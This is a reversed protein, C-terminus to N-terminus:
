DTPSSRVEQLPAMTHSRSIWNGAWIALLVSAGFCYIGPDPKMGFDGAMTEVRLMVVLIAVVFVDLFSWRGTAKMWRYLRSNDARWRGWLGMFLSFFKTIPFVLTFLVIIVGLIYDHDQFLNRITQLLNYSETKNVFPPFRTTITAMPLWLGAVYLGSAITTLVLSTVKYSIHSM